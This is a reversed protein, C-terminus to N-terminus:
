TIEFVVGAETECEIFAEYQYLIKVYDRIDVGEEVDKSNYAEEGPIVSVDIPNDRILEAYTFENGFLVVTDYEETTDQLVPTGAFELYSGLDDRSTRKTREDDRLTRLIDLDGIILVEASSSLSELEDLLTEESELKENRMCLEELILKRYEEMIDSFTSTFTTHVGDDVFAQRESSGELKFKTTDKGELSKVKTIGGVWDLGKRLGCNTLQSNVEEEFGGAIEEDIPQERVWKREEQNLYEQVESFYDALMDLKSELNGDTFWDLPYDDRYTELVEKIKRVRMEMRMYHDIDQYQSFFSTEPEFEKIEEQLDSTRVIAACYFRLIWTNMAMGTTVAGVSDELERQMNWDEWYRMIDDELLIGFYVENFGSLSSFDQSMFEDFLMEIFDASVEDEMYLHFAWGYSVFRLRDLEKRYSDAIRQKTDNFEIQSNNLREAEQLSSYMEYEYQGFEPLDTTRKYLEDLAGKEENEIATKWIDSYTDFIHNLGKVCSELEDESESRRFRYREKDWVKYFGDLFFEVGEEWKDEWYLQNLMISYLDSLRGIIEENNQRNAYMYLSHLSKVIERHSETNRKKVSRGHLTRYNDFIYSWVDGTNTLEPESTLLELILDEAKEIKKQFQEPREKSLEQKCADFFHELYTEYSNM